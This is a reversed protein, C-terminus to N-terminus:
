SPQLYIRILMRLRTRGAYSSWRRPNVLSHVERIRTMTCQQTCRFFLIALDLMIMTPQLHISPLPVLQMLKQLMFVTAERLHIMVQIYHLPNRQLNSGSLLKAKIAKNSFHNRQKAFPMGLRELSRSFSLEIHTLSGEQILYRGAAQRWSNLRVKDKAKDTGIYSWRGTKPNMKVFGVGTPSERRVIEVIDAIIQGKARKSEGAAIYKQVNAAIIDRLRKNGAVFM